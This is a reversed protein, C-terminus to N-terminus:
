RHHKNQGGRRHGHEDILASFVPMLGLRLADLGVAM